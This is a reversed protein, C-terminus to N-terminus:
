LDTPKGDYEYRNLNRLLTDASSNYEQLEVYDRRKLNSIYNMKPHENLLQGTPVLDRQDNSQQAQEVTPYENIDFPDQMAGTMVGGTHTSETNNPRTLKSMNTIHTTRM